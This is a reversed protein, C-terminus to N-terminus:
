ASVRWALELQPDTALEYLNTARNLTVHGHGVLGKLANKVEIASMTTMSVVDDRSMAGYTTITDLALKQKTNPNHGKGTKTGQSPEKVPKQLEAETRTSKSYGGNNWMMVFSRTHHQYMKYYTSGDFYDWRPPIDIVTNM